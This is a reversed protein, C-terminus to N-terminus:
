GGNEGELIDGELIDAEIAKQDERAQPMMYEVYERIHDDSATIQIQTPADVGYLKAQRDIIALVRASYALQEPNKPDVAKSMHSGLLRNLRKGIVIRMKDREEDSDASAALAREVAIRAHRASSYNLKNKIETYSAGWVFLAVAAEATTASSDVAAQARVADPDAAEIAKEELELAPDSM